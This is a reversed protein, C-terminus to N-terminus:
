LLAQLNAFVGLLRAKGLIKHEQCHGMMLEPLTLLAVFGGLTFLVISSVVFPVAYRKERPNLGPTIFRWLQWLWVPFALIVGGYTAIQHDHLALVDEITLFAPAKM